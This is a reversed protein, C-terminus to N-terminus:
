KQTAKKKLFFFSFGGNTFSCKCQSITFVVQQILAAMGLSFIGDLKGKDSLALLTEGYIWQDIFVQTHDPPFWEHSKFYDAVQTASYAKFEDLSPPTAM